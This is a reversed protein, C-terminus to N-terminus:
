EVLAAVPSLFLAALFRGSKRSVPNLVGQWSSDTAQTIDKM